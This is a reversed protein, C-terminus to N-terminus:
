SKHREMTLLDRADKVSKTEKGVYEIEKESIAFVVKQSKQVDIKNTFIKGINNDNFKKSLVEFVEKEVSFYSQYYTNYPLDYTIMNELEIPEYLGQSGGGGFYRQFVITNTSSSVYVSLITNDIFVLMFIHFGQQDEQRTFGYTETLVYEFQAYEGANAGKVTIVVANSEGDKDDRYHEFTVADRDSFTISDMGTIQKIDDVPWGRDSPDDDEEEAIIHYILGDGYQRSAQDYITQIASSDTSTKAFFGEPNLDTNNLGFSSYTEKAVALSQPSKSYITKLVNNKYWRQNDATIVAGENIYSDLTPHTADKFMKRDAEYRLKRWETLKNHSVLCYDYEYGYDCHLYALDKDEGYDYLALEYNDDSQKFDYDLILLAYKYYKYSESGQTLTIDMGVDATILDDEDINIYISFDFAFNYKNAESQDKDKYGTEFDIYVDGTVTHSYKTDFSYSSGITEYIIKLYQFQSLPPTNLDIQDEIKESTDAGAFYTEFNSMNGHIDIARKPMLSRAGSSSRLDLTRGIAEFAKSVKQYKNLNTSNNGGCGTLTLLSTVFLIFLNRNTKM